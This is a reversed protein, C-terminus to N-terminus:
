HCYFCASIKPRRKRENGSTRSASRNQGSAGCSPAAVSPFLLVVCKVSVFLFVNRLMFSLRATLADSRCLYIFDHQFIIFLLGRESFCPMLQTSCVQLTFVDSGWCTRKEANGEQGRSWSNFIAQTFREHVCTWHRGPATSDLCM